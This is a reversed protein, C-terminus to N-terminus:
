SVILGYIEAGYKQFRTPSRHMIEELEKLSHPPTESLIGLYMKPLIVDSEVYLERARTKRWNKLKEM